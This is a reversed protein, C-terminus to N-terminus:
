VLCTSTADLCLYVLYQPKESYVSMFNGSPFMYDIGDRESDVHKICSGVMEFATKAM